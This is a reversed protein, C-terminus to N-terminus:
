AGNFHFVCIQMFHYAMVEHLKKKTAAVHMFAFLKRVSVIRKRTQRKCRQYLGATRQIGKGKESKENGTM